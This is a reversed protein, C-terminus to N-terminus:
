GTSAEPPPGGSFMGADVFLLNSAGPIVRFVPLADQAYRANLPDDHPIRLVICETGDTRRDVSVEIAVRGDLTIRLTSDQLTPIDAM